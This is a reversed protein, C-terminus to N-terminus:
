KKGVVKYALCKGAFCDLRDTISYVVKYTLRENKLNEKHFSRFMGNQFFENEIAKAFPISYEWEGIPLGDKFLGKEILIGKNDFREISAIVNKNMMFKAYLQGNPWYSKQFGNLQGNVFNRQAFLTGDDYFYRFKGEAKFNTFEGKIYKRGNDHYLQFSGNPIGDTIAVEGAKLADKKDFKYVGDILQQNMSKTDDLRLKIQTQADTAAIFQNDTGIFNDPHYISDISSIYDSRDFLTEYRVIKGDKEIGSKIIVNKLEPYYIWFLEEGETPNNGIIGMAIIENTAKGSVPHVYHDEVIRLGTINQGKIRGLVDKDKAFKTLGKDLYATVTYDFILGRRIIEYLNGIEIEKPSYKGSLMADGVSDMQEPAIEKYADKLWEIHSLEGNIAWNLEDNMPRQAIDEGNFHLLRKPLFYDHKLDSEAISDVLVMNCDYFRWNGDKVIGHRKSQNNFFPNDSFLVTREVRTFLLTFEGFLYSEIYPGVKERNGAIYQYDQNISEPHLYFTHPKNTIFPSYLVNQALTINCILVTLGIFLRARVTM